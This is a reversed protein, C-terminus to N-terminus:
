MKREKMHLSLLTLQEMHKGLHKKFATLRIYKDKTAEAIDKEWNDCFPCATASVDNVPEEGQLVFARLQSRKENIQHESRLHDEYAPSSSFPTHQCMKCVWDRRHNCLEHSFWRDLTGFMKLECEKFTCIYPKLDRFLHEKWAAHDNAVQEMRCSLCQFPVGYQIPINEFARLTHTSVNPKDEGVTIDDCSMLEKPYTEIHKLYQRRRTLAKGLRTILWDDVGSAFEYQEKILCIDVNPDFELQYIAAAIVYDDANSIRRIIKSARFLGTNASEMASSLKQLESSEGSEM